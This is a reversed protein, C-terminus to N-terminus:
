VGSTSFGIAVGRGNRCYARWQPLSDASDSFSTAFYETLQLVAALLGTINRREHDKRVASAIRVRGYEVEDPDNSYKANSLWIRGSALIEAFAPFRTYHYVIEPTPRDKELEDLLKALDNATKV